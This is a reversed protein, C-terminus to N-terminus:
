MSMLARFFKETNGASKYEGNLTRIGRELHANLLTPFYEEDTVERKVHQSILAHYIYDYDGTVTSRQLTLGDSSEKKSFDVPEPNRLSLSVAYRILINPTVNTASHLQKLSEGVYKSTRLIFNM